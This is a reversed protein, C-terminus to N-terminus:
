YFVLLLFMAIGTEELCRRIGKWSMKLHFIDKHTLTIYPNQKPVTADNDLENPVPAKGGAGKANGNSSVKNEVTSSSTCGM